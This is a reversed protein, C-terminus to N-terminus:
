VVSKRDGACGILLVLIVVIVMVVFSLGKKPRHIRDMGKPKKDRKKM